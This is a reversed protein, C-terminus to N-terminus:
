GLLAYRVGTFQMARLGSVGRGPTHVALTPLATDFWPTPRSQPPRTDKASRQSSPCLRLELEGAVLQSRAGFCLAAAATFSATQPDDIHALLPFLVQGRLMHVARAFLQRVISDGVVVVDVNHQQFHEQVQRRTYQYYACGPPQFM